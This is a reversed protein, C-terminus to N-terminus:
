LWINSAEQTLHDRVELMLKPSIDVCAVAGSPPDSAEVHEFHEFNDKGVKSSSPYQSCVFINPGETRCLGYGNLFCPEDTVPNLLHRKQGKREARAM